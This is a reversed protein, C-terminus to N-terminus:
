SSLFIFSGVFTPLTIRYVTIHTELSPISGFLPGVQSTDRTTNSTPQCSNLPGGRSVRTMPLLCSPAKLPFPGTSPRHLHIVLAQNHSPSSLASNASHQCACLGDRPRLDVIKKNKKQMSNLSRLRQAILRAVLTYVHAPPIYSVGNYVYHPLLFMLLSTTFPPSENFTFFFPSRSFFFQRHGVAM